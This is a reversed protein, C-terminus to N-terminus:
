SRVCRSFIRREATTPPEDWWYVIRARRQPHPRADDVAAIAQNGAQIRRECCQRQADCPGHRRQTCLHSLAPHDLRAALCGERFKSAAFRRTRASRSPLGDHQLHGCRAQRRMSNSDACHSAGWSDRFEGCRTSYGRLDVAASWGRRRVPCCTATSSRETLLWALSRWNRARLGSAGSDRPVLAAGVGTGRRGCPLAPRTVSSAARKELTHGDRM